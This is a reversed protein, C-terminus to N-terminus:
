EQGLYTASSRRNEKVTVRHLEIGALGGIYSDIRRWIYVALNESTPNELGDLENLYQHDLHGCTRAWANDIVGFDILWGSVHGIRGSVEIEASYTHGHVRHCKHEPLTRPLRHASQFEYRRSVLIAPGTNPKTKPQGAQAELQRKSMPDGPLRAVAGRVGPM